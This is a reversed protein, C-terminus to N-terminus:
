RPSKVPNVVAPAPKAFRAPEVNVNPRIEALEIITQGNTWTVVSRFPMKVGAVDRYDSYDIQIPVTGVPTDSYRLQRVLLSTENDFFLKIRSRGAATGQIITVEKDDISTIPFGTRWDTLAQKIGPPFWLAADIKVADLEAGALLPLLRVPKDVSAIWGERGDFTTTTNGNQTHAITALQAPAKAYIEFPVKAHYTDYGEYTGTGVFSMLNTLRQAGGAAQIFKDLIQDATLGKPADAVIEVLNPDEPPVGYQDALSPIVRPTEAGRHCSYCTLARRGGFRTKNIDNVMTIMSRAMRKRPVDDAFRDWNELSESVHCYVCNLGLSAAFFGMTDMFQNVPIGKLIQVNKFVDEAMLPKQSTQQAIRQALTQAEQETQPRTQQSQAPLVGAACAVLFTLMGLAIRSSGIRM